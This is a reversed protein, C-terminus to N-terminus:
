TVKKLRVANSGDVAWEVIQDVDKPTVIMLPEEFPIRYLEWKGSSKQGQFMRGKNIIVFSGDGIRYSLIVSKDESIINLYIKDCDDGDPAVWWIFEHEKYKIVRRGKKRVGM